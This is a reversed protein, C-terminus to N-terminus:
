VIIANIRATLNEKFKDLNFKDYDPDEKNDTWFLINRHNLDFHVGERILNGNDDLKNNLWDKHCTYIVPIGLGFAFGAEFYVGGRYGTLDAVIFRSRRIETIIQDNIDNHHHVDDIKQAKFKTDTEEIAPKIYKNYVSQMNPKENDEKDNFWMAVFCQNSKIKNKQKETIYSIGKPTLCAQGNWEKTKNTDYPQKILDEELLYNLTGRLEEPNISFFLPYDYFIDINILESLYGTKQLFYDLAIDIKELLNTPYSINNLIEDQTDFDFYVYPNDYRTKFYYRLKAKDIESLYKVDTGYTNIRVIGCVKCNYQHFHSGMKMIPVNNDIEEGGCLFCKFKDVM